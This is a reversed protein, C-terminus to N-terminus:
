FGRRVAYVLEDELVGNKILTKEFRAELQFGSKELVRQSALNSGFPRAFIRDIELNKFGWDVIQAIARPAIKNGWFPEAVWYGLEANLRQIDSQPHLGIGGAVENEVTIAFVSIPQMAMTMEIFARGNEEFYPHPFKDTLNKSINFNNAHKVLTPLDSLAFPRLKFEMM